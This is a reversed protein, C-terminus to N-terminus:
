CTPTEHRRPKLPTSSFPLQTPERNRSFSHSLGDEKLGSRWNTPPPRRSRTWGRLDPRDNGQAKIRQALKGITTTKGVGNVGVIMIVYPAVSEPVGEESAVGQNESEQLIALLEDKIAAKLAAIDNIQKRAIGRRVKDLIALTTPVGIDAAILAEELEDLLEADIQKRGQFVTDIRESRNADRFPAASDHCHRIPAAMRLGCSM